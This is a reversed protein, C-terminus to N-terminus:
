CILPLLLQRPMLLKRRGGVGAYLYESARKIILTRGARQLIGKIHQELNRGRTFLQRRFANCQFGQLNRRADCQRIPVGSDKNATVLSLFLRM